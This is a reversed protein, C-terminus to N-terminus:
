DASSCCQLVEISCYRLVANPKLKKPESSNCTRSIYIYINKKLFILVKRAHSSGRPRQLFETLILFNTLPVM